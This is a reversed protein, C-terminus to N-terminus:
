RLLRSVAEEFDETTQIASLVDDLRSTANIQQTRHGGSAPIVPSGPIVKKVPAKAPVSQTTNPAIGLKRAAMQALKMPKDPSYYLDDDLEKLQADILVMEKSLTSDADTVDPYTKVALGMASNVQSEWAEQEKQENTAQVEQEKARLEFEKRSLKTIKQRIEAQLRFDMEDSAELEQKELEEIESLVSELESGGTELNDHSSGDDDSESLKKVRDLCEVLSLEPNAKYMDLAKAEFEDEPRRIRIRKANSTELHEEEDGTSDEDSVEGEAAEPIEGGGVEDLEALMKEVNAEYDEISEIADQEEAETQATTEEAGMDPEEHAEAEDFEGNM